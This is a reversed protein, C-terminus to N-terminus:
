SRTCRGRTQNMSLVESLMFCRAAMLIFIEDGLKTKQPVMGMYGGGILGFRRMETVKMVQNEHAKRAFASMEQPPITSGSRGASARLPGLEVDALLLRCYTDCKKEGTPVYIDEGNHLESSPPLNIVLGIAPGFIVMYVMCVVCVMYSGEFAPHLDM